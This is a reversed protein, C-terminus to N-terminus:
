SCRRRPRASVATPRMKTIMALASFGISAMMPRNM